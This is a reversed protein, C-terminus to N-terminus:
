SHVCKNISLAYSSGPPCTGHIPREQVCRNNEPNFGSPCSSAFAGALLSLILVLLWSCKVLM